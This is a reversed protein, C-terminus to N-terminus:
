CISAGYEFDQAPVAAVNDARAILHGIARHPFLEIRGISCFVGESWLAVGFGDEDDAVVIPREGDRNHALGSLHLKSVLAPSSSIRRRRMPRLSSDATLDAEGVDLRLVFIGREVGALESGM